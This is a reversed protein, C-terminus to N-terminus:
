APNPPRNLLVWYMGIVQMAKEFQEFDVPKNIYSNVGFAYSDLVDRDENSATLVVVPIARTRPDSRVQQLVERGDVLPLKLDLLIVRPLESRSRGAFEGRCFLFDLADAGDRVVQINNCVHHDRLARLTLELDTPNDEVLLIEVARADM